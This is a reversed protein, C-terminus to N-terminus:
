WGFEAVNEIFRIDYTNDPFIDVALLDFQVEDAVRYKALYASAARHMASIKSKTVAQEPASLSLASRTKVEVFHVIGAKQAVIDIEYRGQRWNTACILYGNQRLYDVAIDEGRRGTEAKTIMNDFLFFYDV